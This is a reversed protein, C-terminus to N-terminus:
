KEEKLAKLAAFPNNREMSREEHEEFEKQAEACRPYPNIALSLYQTVLEGLNIQGDIIPEPDEFEELMPRGEDSQEKDREHRARAFSVAQEPDAYWAIFDDEIHDPVPENKVICSQTLDASFYGQVEIVRKDLRKIKIQANLSNLSLLSLRRALNRRVEEDAVVDHLLEKSEIEDAEIFYQWESVENNVHDASEAM